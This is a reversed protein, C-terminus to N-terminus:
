VTPDTPPQDACRPPVTAHRSLPASTIAKTNSSQDRSAAASAHAISRWVNHSWGSIAATHKPWGAGSSGALLPGALAHTISRMAAKRFSSCAQRRAIGFTDNGELEHEMEHAVRVLRQMSGIMLIPAAVRYHDQEGVPSDAGGQMPEPIGLDDLAEAMVRVDDGVGEVLLERALAAAPHGAARGVPRLLREAQCAILHVIESLLSRVAV